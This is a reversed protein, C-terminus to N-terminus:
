INSVSTAGGKLLYYEIERLTYAKPDKASRIDLTKIHPIWDLTKHLIARGKEGGADNDTWILVEKCGLILPWNWGDTGLGAMAPYLRGVRGASLIDETLCVRRTIPESMWHLPVKKPGKTLYKPVQDAHVARAIYGLPEVPIVVRQLSPSWQVAYKYVLDHTWGGKGLWALAEQTLLQQCDAPLNFGEKDKEAYYAEREAERKKRDRFTSDEHPLYGNQNCKFCHFLYGKVEMTISLAKSDSCGKHPVKWNQGTVMHKITDLYERGDISM